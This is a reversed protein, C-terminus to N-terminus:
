QGEGAVRGQKRPGASEAPEAGGGATYCVGGRGRGPQLWGPRLLVRRGGSRPGETGAGAGRM